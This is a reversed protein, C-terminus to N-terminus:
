NGFAPGFCIKALFHQNLRIRKGFGGKEMYIIFRSATNYQTKTNTTEISKVGVTGKSNLKISTVWNHTM